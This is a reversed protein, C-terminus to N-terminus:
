SRMKQALCNPALGEGRRVFSLALFSTMRQKSRFFSSATCSETSSMPLFSSRTGKSRLRATTRAPNAKSAYVLGGTPKSVKKAKQPVRSNDRQHKQAKEPNGQYHHREQVPQPLIIHPSTLIIRGFALNCVQGLLSVISRKYVQNIKLM